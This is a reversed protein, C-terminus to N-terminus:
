FVPSLKTLFESVAITTGIIYTISVLVRSYPSVINALTGFGSCVAIAQSRIATPYIESSYLYLTMFSASIGIKGIINCTIM